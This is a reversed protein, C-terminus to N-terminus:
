RRVAQLILATVLVGFVMACSVYAFAAHGFGGLSRDRRLRRHGLVATILAPGMGVVVTLAATIGIWKWGMWRPFGSYAYPFLFFAWTFPIIGLYGSVAALKSYRVPAKAQADPEGAGGPAAPVSPPQMALQDDPQM